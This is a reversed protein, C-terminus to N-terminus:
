SGADVVGSDLTGGDVASTATTSTGADLEVEDAPVCIWRTPHCRFGEVCDDPSRCPFTTGDVGLDDLCAATLLATAATLALALRTM